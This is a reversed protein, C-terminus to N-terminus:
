KSDLELLKYDSGDSCYLISNELQKNLDENWIAFRGYLENYSNSFNASQFSFKKRWFLFTEMPFNKLESIIANVMYNESEKSKIALTRFILRKIYQETIPFEVYATAAGTYTKFSSDIWNNLQETNM